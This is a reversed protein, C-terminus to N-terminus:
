GGATHCRKRRKQVPHLEHELGEDEDSLGDDEQSGDDAKVELADDRVVERDAGVETVPRLNSLGVTSPTASVTRDVPLYDYQLSPLWMTCVLPTSCQYIM